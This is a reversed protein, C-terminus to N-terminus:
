FTTTIGATVKYDPSAQSIQFGIGFDYTIINNFAYNFGLLGECSNDDFSGEFTTDGVIEGVLNFNEDLPYEIAFKYSFVDDVDEGEPEGKFAYGFNM